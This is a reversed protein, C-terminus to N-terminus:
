KNDKLLDLSGLAGEVLEQSIILSGVSVLDRTPYDYSAGSDPEFVSSFYSVFLDAIGDHTDATGSSSFMVEPLPLNGKTYNVHNWFPKINVGQIISDELEKMYLLYKEESLAKCRRRLDSFIVYDDDCWSTKYRSHAFNKDRVLRILARDFWKPYVYALPKTTPVYSDVARYMVDYFKNTCEEIGGALTDTWDINKLHKDMAVYDGRKYNYKLQHSALTQHTSPPEFTCEFPPHFQDLKVIPDAARVHLNPINTLCLDLINGAPNRNFNAQELQLFTISDILVQAKMSLSVSPNNTNTWSLEPLNYDGLVLVAFDPHLSVVYELMTSHAEHIAVGSHGPIYVCGLLM